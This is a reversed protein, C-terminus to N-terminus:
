DFDTKMKKLAGKFSAVRRMEFQIRPSLARLTGSRKRPEFLVLSLIEHDPNNSRLGYQLAWGELSAM